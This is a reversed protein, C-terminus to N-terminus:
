SKKAARMTALKTKLRADKNLPDHAEDLEPQGAIGVANLTEIVSVLRALLMEQGDIPKGGDALDLVRDVWILEVPLDAEVLAERLRARLETRPMGCWATMTDTDIPFLKDHARLHHLELAYAHGHTCYQCGNFMSITTLALHLRMPGFEHEARGYRRSNSLWWRVSRVPGLQEVLPQLITCTFGWYRRTIAELLRVAVRDLRSGAMRPERTPPPPQDPTPKDQAPAPRAAPDVVAPTRDDADDTRPRLPWTRPAAPLREPAVTSGHRTRVTAEKDDALTPERDSARKGVVVNGGLTILQDCRPATDTLERPRPV